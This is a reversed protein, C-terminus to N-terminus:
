NSISTTNGNTSDGVPQRGGSVTAVSVNLAWHTGLRGAPTKCADVTRVKDSAVGLDLDHGCTPVCIVAANSPEELV